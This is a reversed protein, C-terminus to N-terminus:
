PRDVVHGRCDANINRQSQWPPWIKYAHSLPQKQEVNICRHEGSDFHHNSWDCVLGERQCTDASSQESGFSFLMQAGTSTNPKPHPVKPGGLVVLTTTATVLSGGTFPESTPADHLKTHGTHRSVETQYCEIKRMTLTPVKVM